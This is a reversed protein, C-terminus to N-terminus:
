VPIAMSKAALLDALEGPSMTESLVRVLAAQQRAAYAVHHNMDVGVWKGPAGPKIRRRACDDIVADGYSFARELYRADRRVRDSLAHYQEYDKVPKHLGHGRFYVIRDGVTYRIKANMNESSGGDMFDPHVVGYDSYTIPWALDQALDSWLLLESRFIALEGDQDVPTVDSLASSGAVILSRYKAVGTGTAIFDTVLDRLKHLEGPALERLDFLLDTMQPALELELSREIVNQWVEDASYSELDDRSIRFCFGHGMERQVARLSQWLEDDRGFGYVPTVQRGGARLLSYGTLVASRGDSTRQELLGHFDVFVEGLPFNKRTLECFRYVHEDVTRSARDSPPLIEVLPKVPVDTSFCARAVGFMSNPKGKVIPVYLARM